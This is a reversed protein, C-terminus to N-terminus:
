INDIKDLAKNLDLDIKETSEPKETKPKRTRTTKAKAEKKDVIMSEESKNSSAQSSNQSKKVIMSRLINKDLKLQETLKSIKDSSVTFDIFGFFAYSQHRIPYSLHRKEPMKSHLIFGGYQGILDEITKIEAQIAEDNLTQVLHFALEYKLNEM